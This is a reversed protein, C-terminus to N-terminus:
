PTATSPPTPVRRSRGSPPKTRCRWTWGAASREGRRRGTARRERPSPTSTPSSSAIPLRAAVSGGAPRPLRGPRRRRRADSEVRVLAAVSGLVRRRRASGTATSGSLWRTSNTPSTPRPSTPERRRRCRWARRSRWGDTAARSAIGAPRKRPPSRAGAHGAAGSPDRRGHRAGRGDRDRQRRKAFMDLARRSVLADADDFLGADALAQAHDAHLRRCTAARTRRCRYGPKLASSSPSRERCIASCCRWTVSTTTRRRSSFRRASKAGCRQDGRTLHREASRYDRVQGLVAGLTVRTRVEGARDGHRKLARCAAELTAAARAFDGRWYHVMGRNVVARAREAGSLM